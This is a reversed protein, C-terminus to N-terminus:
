FFFRAAFQWRVYQSTHTTTTVSRAGEIMEQFLWSHLQHSNFCGPVTYVASKTSSSGLQTFRAYQVAAFAQYHLGFITLHYFRMTNRGTEIVRANAGQMGM